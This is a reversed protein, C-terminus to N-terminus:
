VKSQGDGHLSRYLGQRVVRRRPGPEMGLKTPSILKKGPSPDKEKTHRDQTTEPPPGSMTSVM